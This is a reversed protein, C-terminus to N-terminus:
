NDTGGEASLLGCMQSHSSVHFSRQHSSGRLPPMSMAQPTLGLFVAGFFDGLRSVAVSLRFIIAAALAAAPFQRTRREVM